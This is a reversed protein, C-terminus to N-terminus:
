KDIVRYHGHNDWVIWDIRHVKPFKVKMMNTTKSVHVVYGLSRKQLTLDKIFAGETANDFMATFIDKM